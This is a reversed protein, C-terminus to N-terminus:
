DKVTQKNLERYDICLRIEGNKKHVFVAPAMWPSSSVEIIGQQLLTALQQEIEARYNVPIRRPLIKVPSGTTPIFHEAVNTKSPTTHFLSRYTELLTSLLANHYQSLDCNVAVDYIPVACDDITDEIFETKTSVACMKTKVKRPANLVPQVEPQYSDHTASKNQITVPTTSRVIDTVKKGEDM